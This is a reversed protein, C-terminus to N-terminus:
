DNSYGEGLGERLSPSSTHSSWTHNSFAYDRGRRPLNPPPLIKTDIVSTFTM